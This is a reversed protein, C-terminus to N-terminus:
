LLDLHPKFSEGGQGGCPGLRVAPEDDVVHHDGVRAVVRARRGVRLGRGDVDEDRRSGTIFTFANKLYILSNDEISPTSPAVVRASFSGCDIVNSVSTFHEM